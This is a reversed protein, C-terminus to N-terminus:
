NYQDPTLDRLIQTRINPDPDRGIVRGNRIVVDSDFARAYAEEGAAFGLNGTQRQMGYSAVGPARYSKAMATPGVGLILVAALALKLKNMTCKEM